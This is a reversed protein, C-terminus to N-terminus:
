GLYKKTLKRSPFITKLYIEGEDKKVFPVLYVYENIDIVYLYQHSYQEQNPHKLIDLLKGNHIAAIIEEFSINRERILQQNKEASFQYEIKNVM